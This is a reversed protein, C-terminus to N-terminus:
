GEPLPPAPRLTAAEPRTLAFVDDTRCYLDGCLRGVPAYRQRDLRLTAPDVRGARVHVARVEGMVLQRGPGM